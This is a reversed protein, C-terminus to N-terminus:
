NGEAHVVWVVTGDALAKITEGPLALVADGSVWTSEQSGDLVSAQGSEVFCLSPAGLTFATSGSTLAHVTFGAGRHQYTDHSGVAQSAVLEPGVTPAFNGLELFGRTDKHKPTLGARIVNDSPLMVELGMGEVYAHVEGAPVFLAEGRKLLVHHMLLVFLIGLDGPHAASVQTLLHVERKTLSDLHSPNCSSLWHECDQVAAGLRPSEQVILEAAARPDGAVPEMVEALSPPAGAGLWRAIRDRVVHEQTFGALAVFEESLAIILEPKASRDKYTRERSNLPVGRTEEDDFGVEAQEQSPHVQISLPKQAALLKALLPFITGTQELWSPFAVMGEDASISCDALPHDGWWVEAEPTSSPELGLARSLAGPVGWDYNKPQSILRHAM